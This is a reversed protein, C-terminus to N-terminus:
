PFGPLGGGGLCSAASTIDNPDAICLNGLSFGIAAGPDACTLGGECALTDSCAECMSTTPNCVTCSADCDAQSTCPTDGGGGLIDEFGGPLGGTDSGGGAQSAEICIMDQCVYNGPCDTDSLCDVCYGSAVDCRGYSCDNDSSCNSSSGSDGGGIDGNDGGTDNNGGTSGAETCTGDVCSDGYGCQDDSLCEVCEGSGLECLLGVSCDESSGCGAPEEEEVCANSQCIYGDGCEENTTCEIGTTDTGATGDNATFDPRASGCATLLISIFGVWIFTTTRKTM